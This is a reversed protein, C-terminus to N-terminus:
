SDSHIFTHNLHSSFSEFFFYFESYLPHLFLGVIIHSVCSSHSVFFFFVLFDRFFDVFWAHSFILIFNIQQKEIKWGGMCVCKTPWNLVKRIKKNKKQLLIKTNTYHRSQPFFILNKKSIKAFNEENLEYWSSIMIMGISLLTWM